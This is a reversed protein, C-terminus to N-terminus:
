QSSSRQFLQVIPVFCLCPLVSRSSSLFGIGKVGAVVKETVKVRLTCQSHVKIIFITLSRTWYPVEGKTTRSTPTDFDRQLRQSTKMTETLFSYGRIVIITDVWWPLFTEPQLSGGRVGSPILRSTSSWMLLQMSSILHLAVWSRRESEWGRTRSKANPVFAATDGKAIKIYFYLHDGAIVSSWYSQKM